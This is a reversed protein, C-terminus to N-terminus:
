LGVYVQGCRGIRLCRPELCARGEEVTDYDLMRYDVGLLELTKCVFKHFFSPSNFTSHATKL